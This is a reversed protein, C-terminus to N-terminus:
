PPRDQVLDLWPESSFTRGSPTWWTMSGDAHLAVQWGPSHKLRHHHRCLVELNSSETRGSPWPVTHDLDTGTSVGLGARRCGPFRCVVDRTRVARELAASPRYGQEAEVPGSAVTVVKGASLLLDSTQLETLPGVGPLWSATDLDAGSASSAESVLHLHVTPAHDPGLLWAVLLDARRQDMTRVDAAGMEHAASTLAQQIQRADVSPLFAWLESMGDDGVAIEVRRDHEARGRRLEAVEPALKIVRRRLWARTESWTHTQAYTVGAVVLAETLQRVELEDLEGMVEADSLAVVEDTIVRVKQSDVAGSRWTAMLAPFREARGALAFRRGAAVKTSALLVGLEDPLFEAHSRSPQGTASFDAADLERAEDAMANMVEAQAAEAANRVREFGVLLERLRDDTRARPDLADDPPDASVVSMLVEDVMEGVAQLRDVLSAIRPSM